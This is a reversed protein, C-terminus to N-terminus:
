ACLTLSKQVIKAPKELNFVRKPTGEQEPQAPVLEQIRNFLNDAEADFKLTNGDHSRVRPQPSTAASPQTACLRVTPVGSERSPCFHLLLIRYMSAM